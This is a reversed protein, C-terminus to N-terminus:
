SSALTNKCDLKLAVFFSSIVVLSVMIFVIRFGYVSILAGAILPFIMSVIDGAGSIGTYIARNESNSIEILVGSKSIKYVSVFFGSLLFLLQYFAEYQILFLSAIPILAGAIAAAKIMFKYNIRSALRYFVIGSVVMGTIRFVLFNGIMKDTLDFNEKAFLILFPLTSMALGFTNILILYYKLNSNDKIESPIRKFFNIIGKQIKIKSRVEKIQWFGFSATFLLVAAIFFLISYNSPYDYRKLIERVILASIFVGISTISEKLTFFNKRKQPNISKGFIDMYSINAFSGSLAFFSIIIFIFIIVLDSRVNSSYFFLAALAFLSIIRLNIATLLYNKKYQKNSLYSAFFLQFFSSGGLLIATLIGLHVPTGGSQILMAPIVTDIDMFNSALALFIAHWLFAKFNVKSRKESLINYM